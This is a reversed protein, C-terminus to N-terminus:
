KRSALMEPDRDPDLVRLLLKETPMGAVVELLTFSEHMHETAEFSAALAERLGEVWPLVDNHLIRRPYVEVMVGGGAWLKLPRGMLEEDSLVQGATFRGDDRMVLFNRKTLDLDSGQCNRFTRHDGPQSININTSIGIEKPLLKKLDAAIGRLEERLDFPPDVREVRHSFLGFDEVEPKKPAFSDFPQHSWVLEPYDGNPDKSVISELRNFPNEGGVEVYTFELRLGKSLYGICIAMFDELTGYNERWSARLNSILRGDWVPEELVPSLSESCGNDTALMQPEPKDARQDGNNFWKSKAMTGAYDQELWVAMRHLDRDVAEDVSLLYMNGRESTKHALADLLQFLCSRLWRETWQGLACREPDPLIKSGEEWPWVADRLRELTDAQVWGWMSDFMKATFLILLGTLVLAGGLVHWKFEPQVVQMLLLAAPIITVMAFMTAALKPSVMAWAEIKAQTLSKSM